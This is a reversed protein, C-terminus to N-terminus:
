SIRKLFVWCHQFFAMSFDGTGPAKDGNMAKVVRRVEEEEVLSNLTYSRIFSSLTSALRWGTPLFLVM